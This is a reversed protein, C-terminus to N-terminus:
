AQISGNGKLYYTELLVTGGSGGGADTVGQQPNNGNSHVAGEINITNAM